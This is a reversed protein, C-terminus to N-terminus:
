DSYDMESYIDSPLLKEQLEEMCVQVFVAPVFDGEDCRDCAQDLLDHLQQRNTNKM